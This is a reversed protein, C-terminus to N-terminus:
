SFDGTGKILRGLNSAARSGHVSRDLSVSIALGFEGIERDAGGGELRQMRCCM